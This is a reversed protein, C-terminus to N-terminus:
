VCNIAFVGGISLVRHGSRCLHKDCSGTARWESNGLSEQCWWQGWRQFLVHNRGTHWEVNGTIAAQLAALSERAESPFPPSQITIDPVLPPVSLIPVHAVYKGQGEPGRVDGGLCSIEKLDLQRSFGEADPRQEKHVGHVTYIICNKEGAKIM